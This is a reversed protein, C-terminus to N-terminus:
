TSTFLAARAPHRAMHLTVGFVSGKGVRSRVSVRHHLLLAMRDVVSLGLGLGRTRDRSPNDIQFFDEFVADLKDEPIGVGTDWVEITVDGGRRRCGLVIGGGATYRLANSILNRIIRELLIPDSRVVAGCPVCRFRLGKAAAQPATENAMRDLLRQVPFEIFEPTVIGAELTSIDLLTNLLGDSAELAALAKEAIALHQPESLKLLLVELFLRTAQLPQRLDHSAAALFRSKGENAREAQARAQALTEQVDREHSLDAASGIIGTVRGDPAFLPEVTFSLYTTRGRFTVPLEESRGIGSKLVQRKIATLRGAAAGSLLDADTSGIAEEPALGLHPKFLWTYRLDLDQSFLSLNASKIALRLRDESKRLAHELQRREDVERRLSENAQAITRTLGESRRARMLTGTTYTTLAITLMLGAALVTWAALDSRDLLKFPPRMFYLAWRRGGAAVHSEVHPQAAISDVTAATLDAGHPSRQHFLFERGAPADEDFVFIEIGSNGSATRVLKDIRFSAVILGPSEARREAQSAPARDHRFVPAYLAFSYNGAPDQVLKMRESAVIEGTGLALELTRRRDPLAYVDIGRLAENGALPEVYRIPFSVPGPAIAAPDDPVHVAYDPIGDHRAAAEHAPRDDAEVRPVWAIARLAPYAPLVAEAFARFEQQTVHESAAYLARFSRMLLLHHDIQDQMAAAYQAVAREMREDVEARGLHRLQHFGGVSLAVGLAGLLVVAGAEHIRLLWQPAGKETM